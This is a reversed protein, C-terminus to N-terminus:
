KVSIYKSWHRGRSLLGSPVIALVNNSYYNCCGDVLLYWDSYM